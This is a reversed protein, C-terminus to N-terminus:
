SNNRSCEFYNGSVQLAVDTSIEYYIASAAMVSPEFLSSEYDLYCLDLLTSVDKFTEQRFQPMVFNDDVESASETENQEWSESNMIQMYVSLWANPTMSVLNWELTNLLIIEFEMITDESCAGDTMDAFEKLRPPYIEEMKSAVFLATVGILQLQQKQVDKTRSLYRDTFNVSLCFTERHLNYAACVEMMWDILITRMSPTIYKQIDSFLSEKCYHSTPRDHMSKWLQKNDAWRINPLRSQPLTDPRLHLPRHCTPTRPSLAANKVPEKVRELRQKKRPEDVGALQLDQLAESEDAKRKKSRPIQSVNELDPIHLQEEKQKRAQIRISKRPM